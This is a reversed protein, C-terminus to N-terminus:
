GIVEDAVHALSLWFGGLHILAACRWIPKSQFGSNASGGGSPINGAAKLSPV